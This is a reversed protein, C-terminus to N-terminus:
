VRGTIRAALLSWQLKLPYTARMGAQLREDFVNYRATKLRRLYIDAIRLGWLAPKAIRPLKAADRRANECQELAVNAIREFVRSASAGGELMEDRDAAEKAVIDTPMYSLRSAAHYPVSRLAVALGVAIGASLAASRPLELEDEGDSGADGHLIHMTAAALRGHTSRAADVMSQMTRVDPYGLEANRADIIALIDAGIGPHAGCAQALADLVPTRPPPIGQTIEECATRYWVM